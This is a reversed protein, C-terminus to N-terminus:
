YSKAVKYDKPELLCIGITERNQMYMYIITGM